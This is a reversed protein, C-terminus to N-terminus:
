VRMRVTNPAPKTGIRYDNRRAAGAAPLSPNGSSPPWPHGGPGSETAM